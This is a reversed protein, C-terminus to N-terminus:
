SQGGHHPITITVKCKSCIAVDESSGPIIKGEHNCLPAMRLVAISVAGLTAGAAMWLLEIM